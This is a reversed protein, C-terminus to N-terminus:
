VKGCKVKSVLFIFFYVLFFFLLLVGKILLKGKTKRRGMKKLEEKQKNGALTTRGDRKKEWGKESIRLVVSIQLPIIHPYLFFTTFIEIKKKARQLRTKKEM